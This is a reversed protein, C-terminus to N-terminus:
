VPNYTMSKYALIFIVGVKIEFSDGWSLLSRKVEVDHLIVERHIYFTGRPYTLHRFTSAQQNKDDWLYKLCSYPNKIFKVDISQKFNLKLKVM